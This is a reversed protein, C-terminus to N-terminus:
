EAKLDEAEIELDEQCEGCILQGDVFKFLQKPRQGKCKPCMLVSGLYAQTSSYGTNLSSFMLLAM